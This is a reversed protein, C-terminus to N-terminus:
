TVITKACAPSSTNIISKGFVAVAESLSHRLKRKKPNLAPPKNFKQQMNNDDDGDVEINSEEKHHDDISEDGENDDHVEEEDELEENDDHVEEEDELDESGADLNGNFQDAGLDLEELEFGSSQSISLLYPPIM